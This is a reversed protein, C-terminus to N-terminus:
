LHRSHSLPISFTGYFSARGPQRSFDCRNPLGQQSQDDDQLSLTLKFGCEPASDDRANVGTWCSIDGAYDKSTQNQTQKNTEGGDFVM